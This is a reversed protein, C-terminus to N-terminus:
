RTPGCRRSRGLLWSMARGHGETRAVARGDLGLVFPAPGVAPDGPGDRRHGRRRAAGASGRQQGLAWPDGGRHARVPGPGRGRPLGAGGLPLGGADRGDPVQEVLGPLAENLDGACAAGAPGARALGVAAALRARRDDHEPWVLTELWRMADDDRVDLPHLDIGGRWVVEPLAAPLPVDGTSRARSSWRVRGTPRTWRWTAGAAPTGTPTATRTSACGRRRVSRSCRWRGRCRPSCRCCCRAAASRTPRPPGRWCRRACPTGSARAAGAASRRVTRPPRRALARRRAGPEAAAERAAADRDPGAGGRRRRDGPGVRRVRRSSGRAEEGFDAYAEATTGEGVPNVGAPRPGPRDAPRPGPAGDARLGNHEYSTPSGRGCRRCWPRPRRPSAGTSTPTRPTSRRPPRYTAARGAGRRRVPPPWEHEALLDAAEALPALESDDALSWPFVHEGTFLTPDERFERADDRERRGGPRGATPTAPRTSRPTCRTAVASRCRPPSTTGSPPRTRTGSSCTTCRARRRREHRARQRGPPVAPRDDRRRGPLRLEGADCRELLARVRDRDGPYRAYYRRNRELQTAYTAAYVEDVPRGVPPVWRHLVGRAAGRRRVLPLDARLLRRVVPRAREVPRRRARARFLEADRSSRTPGSTGCTTPRSSRRSLGPLTGVPTSRGTGRQDLM